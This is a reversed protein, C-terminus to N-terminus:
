KPDMPHKYAARQFDRLCENNRMEDTAPDCQCYLQLVPNTPCNAYPPHKYAIDEFYHIQEPKLFMGLAMTHVPADGWREYFFGGLQDLYDFYAQYAESQFFDLRAIEFNSWFHCLNYRKEAGWTLKDLWAGPSVLDKRDQMFKITANWLTPITAKYERLIITFGYVKNHKKM